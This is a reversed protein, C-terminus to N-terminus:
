PGEERFADGVEAWNVETLAYGLLDGALTGGLDPMLRTAWHKLVQDSAYPKDPYLNAYYRAAHYHGEDNSLWLHTAWTPYNTWGNYTREDSM